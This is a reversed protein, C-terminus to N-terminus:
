PALFDALYAGLVTQAHKNTPGICRLRSHPQSVALRAARYACHRTKGVRNAARLLVMRAEDDVFHEFAPSPCFRLLEGVSRLRRAGLQARSTLAM